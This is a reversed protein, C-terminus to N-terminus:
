PSINQSSNLFVTSNRDINEAEFIGSPLAM